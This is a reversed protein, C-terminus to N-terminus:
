IIQCTNTSNNAEFVHFKRFLDYPIISVRLMILEHNRLGTFEHSKKILFSVASCIGM